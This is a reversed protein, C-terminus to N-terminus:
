QVGGDTRFFLFLLCRSSVTDLDDDDDDDDVGATAPDYPLDDDDEVPVSKYKSGSFLSLQLDPFGLVTPRRLLNNTLKTLFLFYLSM